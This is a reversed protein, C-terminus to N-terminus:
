KVSPIAPPAFTQWSSVLWRRGFKDLVMLFTQPKVAPDAGKKPLLAFKVQIERQRAYDVLMQADQSAPYPQITVGTTKWDHLWQKLSHYEGRIDGNPASLKYALTPNHGRVGADIFQAAVRRAQAPVRIAKGLPTEKQAPQNTVKDNPNAKVTNGFYAILVAVLGAVLVAAALWPLWRNVRPSTAIGQLASM